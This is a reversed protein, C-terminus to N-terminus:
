ELPSHHPAADRLSVVFASRAVAIPSGRARLAPVLCACGLMEWSARPLGSGPEGSASLGEYSSPGGMAEAPMRVEAAEPTGLSRILNNLNAQTPNVWLDIDESFTAAGYLISAQGSILLYEVGFRDFSRFINRM